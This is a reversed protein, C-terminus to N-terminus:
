VPILLVADVEDARLREAWEPAVKDRLRLQSTAGVFSYARPSVEGILGAEALAALHELPLAVQHDARVADIPYGGHRVHLADGPTDLPITSLSPETKLFEAIRSEAEQQTMAEVGFPEPDDGSIFHGSSTLLAVRSENLPKSLAAFPGEDYTFRAKGELHGQYADRQWEVFRAVLPSSDDDDLLRSVAGLMEAVFRGAEDASLDALFKVNLNSRSGYFFSNKFQALTEGGSDGIDSM